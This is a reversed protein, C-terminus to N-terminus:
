LASTITMFSRFREATEKQKDFGPYDKGFEDTGIHMYRGTFVPDVALINM